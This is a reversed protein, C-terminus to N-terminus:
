YLNKVDVYQIFCRNDTVVFFKFVTLLINKCIFKCDCFECIKIGRLFFGRYPIIYQLWRKSIGVSVYMGNPHWIDTVFKMKPPRQPYEKPFTLHARFYGGESHLM